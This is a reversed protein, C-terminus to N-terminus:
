LIVNQYTEWGEALLLLKEFGRGLVQWGPPWKGKVWGGIRAVVYKADSITKLKLNYRKAQVKLVAIETVTFVTSGSLKQDGMLRMCLLNTAIPLLM